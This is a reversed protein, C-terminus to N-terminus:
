YGGIHFDLTELINTSPGKPISYTTVLESIPVGSAVSAKPSWYRRPDRFLFCIMAVFSSCLLRWTGYDM